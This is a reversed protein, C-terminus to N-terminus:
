KVQDGKVYLLLIDDISANDVVATKYKRRAKKKDA